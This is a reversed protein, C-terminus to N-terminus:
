DGLLKPALSFPLNAPLFLQITGKGKGTCRIKKESWEAFSRKQVADDILATQAASLHSGFYLGLSSNRFAKTTGHRSCNSSSFLWQLKSGKGLSLSLAGKHQKILPLAYNCRVWFISCHCLRCYRHTLIRDTFSVLPEHRKVKELNTKSRPNQLGKILTYMSRSHLLM